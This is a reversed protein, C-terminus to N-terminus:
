GRRLMLEAASSVLLRTPVTSAESTRGGANLSMIAKNWEKARKFLFAIFLIEPYKIYFDFILWVFIIFIYFLKVHFM